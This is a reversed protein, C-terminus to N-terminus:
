LILKKQYINSKITAKTGIVGVHKITETKKIYQIVPDIVNFFLCNHELGSFSSAASNCAIVIAKCKKNILFNTIVQSYYDIEKVSKNGYPLHQTDGFYILRENPLLKNIASAVTLGGIGSDFVGIPNSSNM